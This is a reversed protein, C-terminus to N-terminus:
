CREELIVGQDTVWALSVGVLNPNLTEPKNIM